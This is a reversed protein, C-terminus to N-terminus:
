KKGRSNRLFGLVWSGQLPLQYEEMMEESVNKCYWGNAKGPNRRKLDKYKKILINKYAETRKETEERYEKQKISSLGRFFEREEELTEFHHEDGCDVGNIWLRKGFTHTIDKKRIKM